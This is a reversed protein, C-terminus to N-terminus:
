QKSIYIFYVSTVVHTQMYTTVLMADRTQAM